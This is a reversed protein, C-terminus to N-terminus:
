NDQSASQTTGRSIMHRHACEATGRQSHSMGTHMTHVRTHQSGNELTGGGAHGHGHRGHRDLLTTHLLSGSTAVTVECAHWRCRSPHAHVGLDLQM